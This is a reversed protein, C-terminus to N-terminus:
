EWRSVDARFGQGREQFGIKINDEWRYVHRGLEKEPKEVWCNKGRWTQWM